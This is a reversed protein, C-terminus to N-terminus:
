RPLAIKLTGNASPIAPVLAERREGSESTVMMRVMKMGSDTTIVEKLIGGLNIQEGSSSKQLAAVATSAVTNKTISGGGEVPSSKSVTICARKFDFVGSGIGTINNIRTYEALEAKTRLKEGTPTHLIIDVRGTGLENKSQVLSRKWGPPLGSSIAGVSAGAGRSSLIKAKKRYVQKETHSMKSWKDIVIRQIQPNSLNPLKKKLARTVEISFIQLPTSSSIEGPEPKGGEKLQQIQVAQPAATSLKPAGQQSSLVGQSRHGTVVRFQQNGAAEPRPLNRQPAVVRRQSAVSSVPQLRQSAVSSVPQLRQSAVSSVPQLRQSVVSSVPQFRQSAVSSVPQLRQSVVSSVPQLRQSVVSSVPQLRQSVVSSVPQLRQSAVSSVPQIVNLRSHQAGADPGPSSGSPAQPKVVLISEKGADTVRYVGPSLGCSEPTAYQITSAFLKTGPPVAVIEGNIDSGLILRILLFFCNEM